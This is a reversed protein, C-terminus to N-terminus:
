EFTFRILNSLTCTEPEYSQFYVTKGSFELPAFGSVVAIGEADAVASGAIQANAISVIANCNPVPAHGPAYGYVVFNRVDPTAHRVEITNMVGAVGPQPQMTRTLKPNLLYAHKTEDELYGSTLIQGLDNIFAASRFEVELGPQVIDNLDWMEGDILLFGHSTGDPYEASGVIHGLNNICDAASVGGGFDGIMTMVDNEWFFGHMVEESDTSMGVIQSRENISESRSLNGGLTGIDILNPHRYLFARPMTSAPEEFRAWGVVENKDNNDYAQSEDGGFTPIEIWEGDLELFGAYPVVMGPGTGHAIGVIVGANNIANGRSFDGRAGPMGGIDDMVWDQWRFGHIEVSGVISYGTVVARNNISHAWSYTGGLTGMDEMEGDTVFFAHISRKNPADAWGVIEGVENICTGASTMTGQNLTGLDIATYEPAQAFAYGGSGVILGAIALSFIRNRGHRYM